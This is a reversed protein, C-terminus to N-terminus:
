ESGLLDHWTGCSYFPFHPLKEMEAVGKGWSRIQNKLPFVRDRSTIIKRTYIDPGTGQSFYHEKFAQLEQRIDEFERQPRNDMFRKFETKDTFMSQYFKELEEPCLNCLVADYIGLPIGLEDHIPDLTGGIATRTSFINQITQFCHAGVWVGMSWALLHMRKYDTKEPLPPLEIDRYDYISLIDYGEAPIDAFPHTDMGWGALFLICEENGQQKLWRSRM